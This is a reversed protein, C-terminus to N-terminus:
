ILRCVYVFLLVLPVMIVVLVFTGGLIVAGMIFKCFGCYRLGPELQASCWRCGIPPDAPADAAAPAPNAPAPPPQFDPPAANPAGPGPVPPPVFGGGDVPPGNPPQFGGPGDPPGFGLRRRRSNTLGM